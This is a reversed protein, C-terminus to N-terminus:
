PLGRECSHRVGPPLPCRVSVLASIQTSGHAPETEPNDVHAEGSQGCRCDFQTSFTLLGCLSSFEDKGQTASSYPGKPGLGSMEQFIQDQGGCVIGTVSAHYTPVFSPRVAFRGAHATSAGEARGQLTSICFSFPLCYSGTAPDLRRVSSM